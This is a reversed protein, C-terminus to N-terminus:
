KKRSISICFHHRVIVSNFQHKFSLFKIFLIPYIPYQPGPFLKQLCMSSNYYMTHKTPEQAALSALLPLQDSTFFFIVWMTSLMAIEESPSLLGHRGGPSRGLGLILGLDEVNRTSEKNDSGGPFKNKSRIM